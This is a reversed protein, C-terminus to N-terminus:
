WGIVPGSEIFMLCTHVKYVYMGSVEWSYGSQTAERRDTTVTGEYPGFRQRAPLDKETWIGSLFHGNTHELRHALYWNCFLAIASNSSLM